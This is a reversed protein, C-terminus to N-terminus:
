ICSEIAEGAVRTSQAVALVPRAALGREQQAPWSAEDYASPMPWSELWGPMQAVLTADHNRRAFDAAWAILRPNNSYLWQHLTASDVLTDPTIVPEQAQVVAILVFLCLATGFRKM